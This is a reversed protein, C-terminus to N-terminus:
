KPQEETEGDAARKRQKYRRQIEDPDQGEYKPAEGRPARRTDSETNHRTAAVALQEVLRPTQGEELLEYFPGRENAHPHGDHPALVRCKRGTHRDVAKCEKQFQRPKQVTPTASVTAIAAVRPKVGPNFAERIRRDREAFCTVHIKGGDPAIPRGCVLCPPGSRATEQAAPVLGTSLGSAGATVKEGAQGPPVTVVPSPAPVVEAAEEQRGTVAAGV